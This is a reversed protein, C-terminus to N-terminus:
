GREQTKNRKKNKTGCAECSAQLQVLQEKVCDEPVGIAGQLLRCDVIRSARNLALLPQLRLRLLLNCGPPGGRALPVPCQLM